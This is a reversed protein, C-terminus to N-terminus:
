MLYLTVHSRKFDKSNMLRVKGLKNLRVVKLNRTPSKQRAWKNKLYNGLLPRGTQRDLELAEAATKPLRVGYKYTTRWYKTNTKDIIRDRKKFVYHVLWAFYPEDDIKNSVTYKDLEITSAEKADKLDM